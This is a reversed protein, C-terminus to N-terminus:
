LQHENGWLVVCVCVGDPAQGRGRVSMDTMRTRRHPDTDDPLWGPRGLAGHLKCPSPPQQRRMVIAPQEVLTHAWCAPTTTDFISSGPSSSSFRLSSFILNKPYGLGVASSCGRLHERLCELSSLSSRSLSGHHLAQLHNGLCKCLSRTECLGSVLCWLFSSCLRILSVLFFYVFFSVRARWPKRQACVCRRPCVCM